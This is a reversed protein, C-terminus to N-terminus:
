KCFENEFEEKTMSIFKNYPIEIGGTYEKFYFSIGYGHDGKNDSSYLIRRVPHGEHGYTTNCELYIALEGYGELHPPSGTWSFGFEKAKAVAKLFLPLPGCYTKFEMNM